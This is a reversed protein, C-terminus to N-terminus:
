EAAPRKLLQSVRRNEPYFEDLLAHFRANHSPELLHVLEHAVVFELCEPPYAALRANIRIAGTKPTCSGWRTKMIRVSWRSAQVGIRREMRASVDPLAGQTEVRYRADLAAQDTLNSNRPILSGWLPILEPMNPTLCQPERAQARIVREAIWAAKRDLFAQAYASPTRLPISLTVTGDSRVRLNLNKVRKRTVEIPIELGDINLALIFPAANM